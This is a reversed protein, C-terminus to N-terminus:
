HESENAGQVLQFNLDLCPCGWVGPLKDPLCSRHCHRSDNMNCVLKFVHCACSSDHFIHSSHLSLPLSASSFCPYAACVCVHPATVWKRRQCRCCCLLWELGEAELIYAMNIALGQREREKWLWRERDGKGGPFLSLRFYKATKLQRLLKSQARPHITHTQTRAGKNITYKNPM